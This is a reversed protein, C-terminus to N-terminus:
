LWVSIGYLRRMLVALLVATLVFSAATALAAGVIGLWPVLLVNLATNAILIAASFLTQTLPRGTQSFVMGFLMYPSALVLGGVLVALPLAADDFGKGPFLPGVLLAFGGALLSGSVAMFAAFLASVRRGFRILESTEGDLVLRTIIPNLNSRVVVIAQALGEALLLAVSYIGAQASGLVAGVILVDVRTNLEGITGSPFVRAGFTLHPLLWGLGERWRWRGVIRGTYWLLCPLLLLEAVSFIGALREPAVELAVFAALAALVLVFRAAQLVAFARMHEAGNIAGLLVKNISFCFLGPLLSWWAARLGDLRWIREILPTALLGVLTVAAGLLIVLMLAGAVAADARTQDRDAHESVYRLVSFHVGLVAVQSAFIYIAFAINFLGLAEPGHLRGIVYNLLLGAAALFALSCLNWLVNAGFTSGTPARASGPPSSDQPRHM